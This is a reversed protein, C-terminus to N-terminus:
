RITLNITRTIRINYSVNCTDREKRKTGACIQTTEDIGRNLAQIDRIGYTKNCIENSVLDLPVKQLHTHAEGDYSTRGWGPVIIQESLITNGDALCAPQVYDNFEIRGKIKVLALDHYFSSSKYRPYRIFEAIEFQRPQDDGTNSEFDLDGLLVYKAKSDCFFM